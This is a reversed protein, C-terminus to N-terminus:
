ATRKPPAMNRILSTTTSITYLQVVFGLLGTAVKSLELMSTGWSSFDKIVQVVYASRSLNATSILVAISSGLMYLKLFSARSRKRGLEGIFLSIFCIVSSSVAIKDLEETKTTSLFVNVAALLQIIAQTFILVSLRSKYEAVKKYRSDVVMRYSFDSGDTGSPRGSGPGRQHM